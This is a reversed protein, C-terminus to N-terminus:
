DYRRKNFWLDSFNLGLSFRFTNEKVINSNDGRKNYELAVNVVSAQGLAMRNWNAIPLGAGLTIGWNSLDGGATIYDQGAFFGARYAVNSFYNRGPNSMFQGGVRVQWHDKVADERGMFRYNSWKTQVLDMGVMWNGGKLKQREFVFGATYSAPYIVEGDTGNEIKISDQPFDGGNPDHVYTERALDQTATLKTELNGSVGLRLIATGRTLREDRPILSIDYQAGANVFIGGFSTSDGIRGRYYLLSDNFLSRNTTTERSGFLYGLSAGASFNKIAFGTGISPLYSGGTGKFETVAREISDGTLPDRLFEDRQIFYKIQTVPRLGLALGWNKRLPIGVQLYSFQAGTSSFKETQNPTRLTRNSINIGGDLIVQGANVEGTREETRVRFRSFSAPNNFNVTRVDGYGASVGGMGRNLINTNPVVDGLGYRSYPSNDQAFATTLSLTLLVSFTTKVMGKRKLM